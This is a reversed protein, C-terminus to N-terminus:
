NKIFKKSQGNDFQIFYIGPVFEAIDIQKGDYIKAKKVERGSSNFIVCHVERTLGSFSISYRVPNPYILIEGGISSISNIGTIVDDYKLILDNYFDSAYLDNGVFLMDAARLNTDFNSISPNILSIDIISIVSSGYEAFFLETGNIAMSLPGNLGSIVTIPTPTSETLDIKSIKNEPYESYYFENGNIAFTLPGNLGSIVVVKSLTTQTLDVKYITSLEGFYLDTGNIILNRPSDLGSFITVPVPNPETIDIKSLKGGSIETFYLDNGSIDMFNPRQLDSVFTEPVSNPLTIDLRSIEDGDAEAIFLYNGNIALGLPWNVETTITDRQSYSTVCSFLLLIFLLTKM